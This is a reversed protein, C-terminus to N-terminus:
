QKDISQSIYAQIGKLIRYIDGIGNVDFTYAESIVYENGQLAMFAWFKGIIYCGLVPLESDNLTQAVMMAILAQGRPDGNPDTARKYENLCFYPKRPSRFGTAIMGDVKGSLDYDGIQARMERELFYSFRENDIKAFVFLPSIAKNELEVENWDDGGIQYVEQLGQLYQQEYDSLAYPFRLLEDLVPLHRVQRMGFTLEIKELTWERFNSQIM